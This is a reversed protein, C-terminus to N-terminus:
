RLVIVEKTEPDAMVVLPRRDCEIVFARVFAPLQVPNGRGNTWGVSRNSWAYLVSHEM